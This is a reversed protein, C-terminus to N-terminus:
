QEREIIEKFKPAFYSVKVYVDPIGVGCPMGRSVIGILNGNAALPGGSDGSCAGKGKAEYGCIVAHRNTAEEGGINNLAKSCDESSLTKQHIYQLNDLYEPPDYVIRGWGSLVASTGGGIDDFNLPIPQTLDNFVINPKVKVLAADEEESFNYFQAVEHM